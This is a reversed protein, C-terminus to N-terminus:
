PIPRSALTASTACWWTSRMALEAVISQNSNDARILPAAKKERRAGPWDALSPLDAHTLASNPPGLGEPASIRPWQRAMRCTFEWTPACPSGATHSHMHRVYKRFMEPPGIISPHARCRHPEASSTRWLPVSHFVFDVWAAVHDDGRRRCLGACSIAPGTRGQVLVDWVSTM